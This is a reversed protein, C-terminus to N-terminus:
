VNDSFCGYHQTLTERLTLTKGLISLLACQSVPLHAQLYPLTLCGYDNCFSFYFHTQPFMQPGSPMPTFSCTGIDGGAIM